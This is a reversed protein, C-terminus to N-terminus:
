EEEVAAKTEAEEKPEEEIDIVTEKVDKIMAYIEDEADLIKITAPLDFHAATVNDGTIMESADVVLVGPIKAAEGTVEVESKLILLQMMKKELAENGHFQIPVQMKIEQDTPILQIAAHIIQGSVPHKQVEKMLGFKKEDGYEVWVKANIGHKTIIKNLAAIQFKVPVSVANPGNLVGPVFETKRLKKPKETREMARLTATNM